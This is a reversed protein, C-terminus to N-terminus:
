ERIMFSSMSFPARWVYFISSNRLDIESWRLILYDGRGASCASLAGKERVDEIHRVGVSTARASGAPDFRLRANIKEYAM